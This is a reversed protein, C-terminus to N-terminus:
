KVPCDTLTAATLPGDETMLPITQYQVVGHSSVHLDKLLAEFLEKEKKGSDLQPVPVSPHPFSAVTILDGPKSESPPQILEVRVTEGEKHEATLVMGNSAVGRLTMPKLNVAVVCLQGILQEQHLLGRLGSLITRPAAEGLNIQEVFLRDSNPHLDVSLIRGVRLELRGIHKVQEQAPVNDKNLKAKALAQLAAEKEEEESLYVIDAPYAQKLIEQLEPSQQFEARIPALLRNIYKAVAKKLDLPFVQKAAFAAELSEYDTFEINGGHKEEREIVFAALGHCDLLVPFLVHRCFPLVGNREINGEECFARRIKSEVTTPGDLLDLKSDPESSSMKSGMLGPVMPNMLHIRKRYGLAPLYKEAFTFIKRQDVGGFQADCQLHEEDLAQMVPYILGSLLPHEVQKVVESGAKKADHETVMSTMRYIDLTFKPDLQFDSGRVFKLKELPVGISKLTAKIVAEYYRTRLKLLDWPAKMNDLYAHVDAFLITVHCGARLFDALKTMPVFYGIHPRGTTATGWYINMDRESLIKAMNAEGLVEQLNRSILAQKESPSLSNMRSLSHGQSTLTRIVDIINHHTM